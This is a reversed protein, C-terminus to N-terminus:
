GALFAALAAQFEAPKEIQPSHGCDSFVVEQFRGGNAQYADLVARMQSVMPQSPYVDDGPWGPVFGLKGLTGFDLFSTDSIIQDDSGRIWLVPPRHPIRAFDSVNYYIPAFSNNIGRTGASVMPWNPSTRSDGPYFDDGVRMALMEDVLIEEREPSVRFPPKFYFANLVNRPSNPSSDTRDGSRLREVFDPNATGGGSGAADPWCLTGATDKTGGFGFPAVPSVLTLSAVTESHDIAYQMIIGAGTSWGVLHVGAPPQGSGALGETSVLAFLDESFDRLGRTADIRAPESGGFGRLDPALAHYRPDLAVLTEEFFRSSSVNGHVCVVPIGSPDGAELLYTQLRTTAVSRASVGPLLDPPSM